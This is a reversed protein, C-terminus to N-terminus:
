HWMRVQDSSVRTFYRGNKMIQIDYVYVYTVHKAGECFFFSLFGRSRGGVGVGHIGGYGCCEDTIVM